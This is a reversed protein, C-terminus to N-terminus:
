TKTFRGKLTFNEPVIFVLENDSSLKESYSFKDTSFNKLESPDSIKNSLVWKALSGRGYKAFLGKEKLGNKTKQMFRPTIVRIDDPLIKIAKAYEPSACLLITSDNLSNIYKSIPDAWFEYLNKHKGVKMALKMELRYPQINDFPRVLGYLGSVILLHEQAYKAEDEKISFTDLGNYVDGSYTWVAPKRDTTKWNQYRQYNLKGLSESVELFNTLRKESLKTLKQLLIETETRFVPKSGVCIFPPTKSTVSKSPSIITIM